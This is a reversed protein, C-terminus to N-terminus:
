VNLNSSVVVSFVIFSSRSANPSRSSRRCIPNSTCINRACRTWSLCACSTAPLIDLGTVDKFFSIAPCFMVVVFQVMVRGVEALDALVVLVHHQKKQSAFRIIYWRTNVLFREGRESLHRPLRFEGTPEVFAWVMRIAKGCDFFPVAM